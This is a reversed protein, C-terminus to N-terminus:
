KTQSQVTRKLAKPQIQLFGRVYSTGAKQEAIAGIRAREAPEFNLAWHESSDRVDPTDSRESGLTLGLNPTDEKMMLAPRGFDDLDMLVRLQGEDGNFMLFPRGKGVMGVSMGASERQDGAQFTLVTHNIEDTGWFAIVKGYKDLLEFRQAQVLDSPRQNGQHLRTGLFGGLFGSLAALLLFLINKM